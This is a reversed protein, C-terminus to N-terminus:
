LNIQQNALNIQISINLKRVQALALVASLHRKHARQLRKDLQESLAPHGQNSVQGELSNVLLWCSLIREILMRELPPADEGGLDARMIELQREIAGSLFPTNFGMGETIHKQNRTGVDALVAVFARESAAGKIMAFVERAAQADGSQALALTQSFDAKAALANTQKTQKAMDKSNTTARKRRWEGRAHQHYGASQLAAGLVISVFDFAGKAARDSARWQEIQAAVAERQAGRKEREREDLQALIQAVQGGGIYESVVRGNVRKKRYFYGRSDSHM